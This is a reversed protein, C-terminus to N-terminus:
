SAGLGSRGFRPLPGATHCAPHSWPTAQVLHGPRCGICLDGDGQDHGPGMLISCARCRPHQALPRGCITCSTAPAPATRVRVRDMTGRIYAARAEQVAQVEAATYYITKSIVLGRVGARASYQRFTPASVGCLDAAEHQNLLGTPNFPPETAPERGALACLSRQHRGYYNAKVMQGCQPCRRTAYRTGRIVGRKM